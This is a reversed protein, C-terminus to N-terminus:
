PERPALPTMRMVVRRPTSPWVRTVYSPLTATPRAALVYLMRVPSSIRASTLSILPGAAAAASWCFLVSKWLAM